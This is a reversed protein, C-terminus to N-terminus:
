LVEEAVHAAPRPAGLSVLVESFQQPHVPTAAEQWPDAYAQVAAEMDADLRAAIGEEDHVVVARVKEIGVREVFDYTRELYKAGERYYQMFRGTLRLVEEHGDVTCLLDGKRV